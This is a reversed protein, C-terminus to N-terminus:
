PRTVGFLLWRSVAYTALGEGFSDGGRRLERGLCDTDVAVVALERSFAISLALDGIRLGGFDVGLVLSDVARLRFIDTPGISKSCRLSCMLSAYLLDIRSLWAFSALCCAASLLLFSNSAAALALAAAAAAEAALFSRSGASSSDVFVAPEETCEPGERVTDVTAGDCAMGGTGGSGATLESEGVRPIGPLKGATLGGIPTSSGGWEAM